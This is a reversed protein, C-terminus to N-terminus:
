KLCTLILSDLPDIVKVFYEERMEQQGLDAEIAHFDCDLCTRVVRAYSPGMHRGLDMILEQAMLYERREPNMAVAAQGIASDELVKEVGLELLILGLGYIQPSRSHRPRTRVLPFIDNGETTGGETRAIRPLSSVSLYPSTPDPGERAEFFFSIDQSRWDKQLWPTKHLQLVSLALAAAIELRDQMYLEVIHDGLPKRLLIDRLTQHTNIANTGATARSSHQHTAAEVVSLRYRTNEGLSLQDNYASLLVSCRKRSVEKETIDGGPFSDEGSKTNGLGADKVMACLDSMTWGPNSNGSHVPYERQSQTISRNKGPSLQKIPKPLLTVSISKDAISDRNTEQSVEASNGNSKSIQLRLYPTHCNCRIDALIEPLHNPADQILKLASRNTASAKGELISPWLGTGFKREMVRGLVVNMTQLEHLLKQLDNKQSGFCFKVKRHRHIFNDQLPPKTPDAPPQLSHLIQAIEELTNRASKFITKCIKSEEDGLHKRLENWDQNDWRPSKLDQLLDDLLDDMIIGKLIMKTYFRFEDQQIELRLYFNQLIRNYRRYDQGRKYLKVCLQLFGLVQFGLM